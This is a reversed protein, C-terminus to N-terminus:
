KRWTVFNKDRVNRGTYSNNYGSSDTSFFCLSFFFFDLSEVPSDDTTEVETVLWESFCCFSFFDHGSFCFMSKLETSEEQKSRRTPRITWTSGWGSASRYILKQQQKKQKKKRKPNPTHFVCPYFIRDKDVQTKPKKNSLNYTSFISTPSDSGRWTTDPSRSCIGMSSICFARTTHRQLKCAVLSRLTSDNAITIHAEFSLPTFNKTGGTSALGPSWTHRRNAEPNQNKLINEIKKRWESIVVSLCYDKVSRRRTGEKM